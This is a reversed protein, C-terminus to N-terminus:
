GQDRVKRHARRMAKLVRDRQIAGCKCGYPRPCDCYGCVWDFNVKALWGGEVEVIVSSYLIEKIRCRARHAKRWELREERRDHPVLVTLNFPEDDGM